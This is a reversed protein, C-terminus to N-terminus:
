TICMSAISLDSVPTCSVQLLVCWEAATKKSLAAEFETKFVDYRCDITRSRDIAPM